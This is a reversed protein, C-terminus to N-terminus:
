RVGDLVINLAADIQEPELPRTHLLLRYYLAGWLMDILTQIDVDARLEGRQQARVLMERCLVTPPEILQALHDRSLAPDSQAAAILAQYAARTDGSGLLDTTTMLQTRIDQTIDGSDPFPFNLTDLARDRLAELIVAGKSPWWRYITQKGVGARRAIAEISARDYGLESTTAIAAALIAQRSKENRRAPDPTSTEM